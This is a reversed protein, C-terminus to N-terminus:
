FYWRRRGQLLNPGFQNLTEAPFSHITAAVAERGKRIAAAIVLCLQSIFAHDQFSNKAVVKCNTKRKVKLQLKAAMPM